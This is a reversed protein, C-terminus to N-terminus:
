GALVAIPPYFHRYRYPFGFGGGYFGRGYPYGLAYGGVPYGVGAGYPYGVGYASYGIGGFFPHAFATSGCLGITIAILLVLTARNM